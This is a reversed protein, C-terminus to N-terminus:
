SRQPTVGDKRITRLQKAILPDDRFHSPLNSVVKRGNERDSLYRCGFVSGPDCSRPRVTEYLAFSHLHRDEGRPTALPVFAPCCIGSSRM